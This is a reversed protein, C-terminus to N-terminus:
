LKEKQRKKRREDKEKNPLSVKFKTGVDQRSEVSITGGSIEVIEKVIALGMGIGRKNTNADTQYYKNFIMKQQEKNMGIGNDMVTIEFAGYVDESYITITGREQTYKIANGILNIWLQQLLDKNGMLEMDHLEIEINQQKNGWQPELLIVCQRVQEDLSFTTKEIMGNQQSQLKSLLMQNNALESLRKSEESIIQLYNRREEETVQNELLLNAFGNVSALPTKFEHSFENLFDERMNEVSKLEKVMKNFDQYIMKLPGGLQEELQIEYNGQSVKTIAKTLREMYAYIVHYMAFSLTGIILAMPLIMGVADVPRYNPNNRIVQNAVFEILAFCCVSGISIFICQIVMMARLSINAKYKGKNKM